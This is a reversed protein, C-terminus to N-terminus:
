SDPQMNHGLSLKGRDPAFADASLALDTQLHAYPPKGDHFLTGFQLYNQKYVRM